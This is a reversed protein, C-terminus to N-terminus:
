RLENRKRYSENLRREAEVIDQELRKIREEYAPSLRSRGSATGMREGPLPERGEELRRRAHEVSQLAERIEREAQELRATQSTGPAAGKAGPPAPTAPAAPAEPVPAAELKKVAKAGPIPKDSYIVRGEPTVYKEIAAADMCPSAAICLMVGSRLAIDRGRSRGDTAGPRTASSPSSQM